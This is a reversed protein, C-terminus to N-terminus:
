KEPLQAAVMDLFTEIDSHSLKIKPPHEYYRQFQNHATTIIGDIKTKFYEIVELAAKKKNFKSTTNYLFFVDQIQMLLREVETTKHPVWKKEKNGKALIIFAQERTAGALHETIKNKFGNRDLAMELLPIGFKDIKM